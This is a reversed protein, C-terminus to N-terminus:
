AKGRYNGFGSIGPNGERADGRDDGDSFVDRRKGVGLIQCLQSALMRGVKCRKEIEAPNLQITGVQLAKLRGGSTVGFIQVSIAELQALLGPPTGGVANTIRAYAAPRNSEINNMSGELQVWLNAFGEAWGCYFRIAHRQDETFAAM